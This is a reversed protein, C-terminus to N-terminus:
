IYYDGELFMIYSTFFRVDYSDLEVIDGKSLNFIDVMYQIFIKLFSDLFYPYKAYFDHQEKTLYKLDIIEIIQEYAKDMLNVGFTQSATSLPITTKFLSPMNIKRFLCRIIDMCKLSFLFTNILDTYDIKNLKIAFQKLSDGPYHDKLSSLFMFLDWNHGLIVKNKQFLAPTIKGDYKKCHYKIVNEIFSVRNIYDSSNYKNVTSLDFDFIIPDGTKKNFQTNLSHFDWHCFEYHEYLYTLTDFTSTIFHTTQSATPKHKYFDVADTMPETIIYVLDVADSFYRRIDAKISTNDLFNFSENNIFFKGDASEGSSYSKLVYNAVIKDSASQLKFFNYIDSEHIYENTRPKEGLEKYNTRDYPNLKQKRYIPAIKIVVILKTGNDFLLTINKVIREDRKLGSYDINVGSIKGSGCQIRIKKGFNDCNYAKIIKGM